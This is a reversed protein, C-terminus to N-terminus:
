LLAQGTPEDVLAQYAPVPSAAIERQADLSMGLNSVPSGTLKKAANWLYDNTASQIFQQLLNGLSDHAEGAAPGLQTRSAGFAGAGSSLMSAMANMFAHSIVDKAQGTWNEGAGSLRHTGLALAEPLTEAAFRSVDSWTASPAEDSKRKQVKFLNIQQQGGVLNDIDGRALCSVKLLGFAGKALFGGTASAALSTGFVTGPDLLESAAGLRRVVNLAGTLLGQAYPSLEGNGALRAQAAALAARQANVAAKLELMEREGRQRYTKTSGEVTLSIPGPYPLVKKLDVPVVETFNYKEAKRDAAKLVWEAAIYATVGGVAGSIAAQRLPLNIEAADKLKVGIANRVPSRAASSIAGSFADYCAAWGGALANSPMDTALEFGEGLAAQRETLVPATAQIYEEELRRQGEDSVAFNLNRLHEHLVHSDAAPVNRQSPRSEVDDESDGEGGNSHDGLEARVPVAVNTETSSDAPGVSRASGNSIARSTM